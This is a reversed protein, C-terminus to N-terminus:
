FASTVAGTISIVPPRQAPPLNAFELEVQQAALKTIHRTKTLDAPTFEQEEYKEVLLLQKRRKRRMVDDAHNGRTKLAEIFARFQAETCIGLRDRIATNEARNVDKI